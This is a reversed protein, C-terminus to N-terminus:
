DLACNVRRLLSEVDWSDPGLKVLAWLVVSYTEVTEM